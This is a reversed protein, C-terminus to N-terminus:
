VKEIYDRFYKESAIQDVFLIIEKKENNKLWTYM